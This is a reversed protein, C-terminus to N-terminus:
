SPHVNGFDYRAGSCTRAVACPAPCAHPSHIRRPLQMAPSAASPSARWLWPWPVVNPDSQFETYGDNGSRDVALLKLAPELAAVPVLAPAPANQALVLMVQLM